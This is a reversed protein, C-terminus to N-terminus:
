ENKCLENVLRNLYDAAHLLMKYKLQKVTRKSVAYCIPVLLMVTQNVSPLYINLKDLTKRYFLPV